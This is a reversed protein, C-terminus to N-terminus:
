RNRCNSVSIFVFKTGLLKGAKISEDIWQESIIHTCLAIASLMKETRVIKSAILYTCDKINTVEKAGLQRLERQRRPELVIGTVM